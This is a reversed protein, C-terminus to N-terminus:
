VHLPYCVTACGRARFRGPPADHTGSFQLDLRIAFPAARGFQLVAVVCEIIEPRFPIRTDVPERHPNCCRVLRPMSQRVDDSGTRAASVIGTRTGTATATLGGRGPPRNHDARMHAVDARPRARADHATGGVGNTARDMGVVPAVQSLCQRRTVEPPLTEDLIADVIDAALTTLNVMRSVYSDDVGERRAIAKMSKAEGSELLALWRYGRALALQLPTPETDWPRYQLSGGDPLTVTKHLGRQKIRIPVTVTLSGDSAANVEPQDTQDIRIESM